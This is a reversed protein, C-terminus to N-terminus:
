VEIPLAWGVTPTFQAFSDATVCWLPAPLQSWDGQGGFYGDTLMLVCQTGEVLGHERLYEPVCSPDTGGGGKPKTTNILTGYTQATYTETSQVRGDWYVLVLEEPCVDEVVKQVNGLFASLLPGHISGSTDIGVVIRRFSDDYSSPMYIGAGQMRRNFRRWTTKGFGKAMSGRIHDALVERWDVKSAIVEGLERSATGGMRGAVENGQRILQDVENALVDKEAQTLEEGAAFDHEDFQQGVKARGRGKGKGDSPEDNPEGDEGEEGGDEPEQEEEEKKLIDFVQKANLGRFSEDILPIRLGNKTPVAIDPCVKTLDLLPLNIVYDCAMNTLQADQKWLPAWQVIHRFGIHLAEHLIVFVLEPDTLGDMFDDGMVINRGDTYATPCQGIKTDGFMVLPAFQSLEKTRAIISQAKEIRQSRTLTTM